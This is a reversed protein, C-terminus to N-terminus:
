RSPEGRGMLRRKFSYYANIRQRAYLLYDFDVNSHEAQLVAWVGWFLHSALAYENAERYMSDLEEDTVIESPSGSANKVVSFQFMNESVGVVISPKERSRPFVEVM